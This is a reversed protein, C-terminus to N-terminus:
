GQLHRASKHILHGVNQPDAMRVPPDSGETQTRRGALGDVAAPDDVPLYLLAADSHM